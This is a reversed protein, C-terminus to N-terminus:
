PLRGNRHRKRRRQPAASHQTTREAHGASAARRSRWCAVARVPSTGARALLSVLVAVIMLLVPGFPLGVLVGVLIPWPAGRWAGPGSRDWAPVGDGLWGAVAAIVALVGAAAVVVTAAVVMWGLSDRHQVARSRLLRGAAMAVGCLWGAGASGSAVGALVQLAIAKM